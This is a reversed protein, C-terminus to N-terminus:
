ENRGKSYFRKGKKKNLHFATSGLAKGIRMARNYGGTFRGDIIVSTDPVFDM